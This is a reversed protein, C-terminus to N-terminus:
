RVTHPFVLNHLSIGDPWIRSSDPIVTDTPLWLDPNLSEVEGLSRASGDYMAVNMRYSGTPLGPSKRGHRYSFIRCDIGSGGNAVTRDYATTSRTFAGYDTFPSSSAGGGFTQPEVYLNYTGAIDATFFKGGDAAFVKDSSNRIRALRPGYGSPLRWWGTGGSMRSHGTSGPNSGQISAPVMLFTLTTVYGLAPGAGANMHEPPQYPLTMVGQNSPCMFMSMNRYAAYRDAARGSTSVSLRLMEAMPGIYDNITMAGDPPLNPSFMWNNLNWTSSSTNFFRKGTTNGSGLIADNNEAAYLRMAQVISRLNALCAVSSAAERARGLAPLLMSVLLAIIGIVVLLEVLTFGRYQLRTTRAMM